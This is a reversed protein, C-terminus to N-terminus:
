NDGKSLYSFILKFILIMLSVYTLLSFISSYPAIYSGFKQLNKDSCSGNPILLQPQDGRLLTDLNTFQDKISIIDDTLYSLNEQLNDLYNKSDELGSSDLSVNSIDFDDTAGKYTGVSNQINDLKSGLSDLKSSISSTNIAIKSLENNSFGLKDDISSLKNTNTNLLLSIKSDISNLLNTQLSDQSLSGNIDALHNSPIGDDSGGITMNIDDYDDRSRDGCSVQKFYKIRYDSTCDYELYKRNCQLNYDQVNLAIYCVRQGCYDYTWKKAWQGSECSNLLEQSLGDSSGDTTDKPLVCQNTLKDFTLGSNCYFSAFVCKKSFDDWGIIKFYSTDTKIITDPICDAQSYDHKQVSQHGKDSPFDSPISADICSGNADLIENDSCPSAPICRPPITSTDLINPSLCTHEDYPPAVCVDCVMAGGQSFKEKDSLSLNDYPVCSGDSMPYALWGDPVSDTCPKSWTCTDEDFVYDGSDDPPTNKNNCEYSCHVNEHTIFYLQYAYTGDNKKDVATCAPDGSYATELDISLIKLKDSNPNVDNCAGEYTANGMVNKHSSDYSNFENYKSMCADPDGRFGTQNTSNKKFDSYTATKELAFLNFVIFSLILIFKM